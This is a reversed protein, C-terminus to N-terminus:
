AAGRVSKASLLRVGDVEGHRLLLLTRDEASTTM